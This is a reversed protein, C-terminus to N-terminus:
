FAAGGSGSLLPAPPATQPASDAPPQQLLTQEISTAAEAQAPEDSRGLRLWSKLFAATLATNGRAAAHRPKVPAPGRLLQKQASHLYASHVRHVYMTQTTNCRGGIGVLRDTMAFFPRFVAACCIRVILLLVAHKLNMSPPRACIRRRSCRSLLTLSASFLVLRFQRSTMSIQVNHLTVM